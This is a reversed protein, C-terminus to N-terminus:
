QCLTMTASTQSGISQHAAVAAPVQGTFMLSMYRNERQTINVRDCEVRRKQGPYVPVYGTTVGLNEEPKVESEFKGNVKRQRHRRNKM